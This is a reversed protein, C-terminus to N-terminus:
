KISKLLIKGSSDQTAILYNEGGDQLKYKKKIEEPKLPYNKSIINFKEGKKLEKGNIKEVNLVRGPFDDIHKNSTYLQTNSHLKQIGFQKSVLNFAGSKLISNNPIYLYNQVESFKADVKEEGMEFEFNPESAELNVCVIRTSDSTERKLLVLVEKVENRVGVIHIEALNRLENKLYHLDILPSLKILIQPARKLLQEQIELINPSLDELLFVKKKTSDRRAPDFYIADFNENENLVFDEIKSSNFEADQQLITWNYKVLELLSEDLDNLLVKSFKQAFYYADVGFGSTLDAFSEGQIIKSKYRATSESSSQELNLHPPFIIDSRDLFPFKKSAIKRGQIQQVLELSSVDKFPSKKLLLSHLDSNLNANIYDQVSKELIKTNM